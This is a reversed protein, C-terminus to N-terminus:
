FRQFGNFSNAAHTNTKFQLKSNPTSSSHTAIATVFLIHVSKGTTVNNGRNQQDFNMIYVVFHM